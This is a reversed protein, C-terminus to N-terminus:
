KSENKVEFITKDLELEIILDNKYYFVEKNKALCIDHRGYKQYDNTTLNNKELYNKLHQEIITTRSLSYGEIIAEMQRQIKENAKMEEV